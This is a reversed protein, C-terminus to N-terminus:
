PECDGPKGPGPAPGSLATDGVWIRLSGCSLDVRGFVGSSNRGDQETRVDGPLVVMSTLLRGTETRAEVTWPLQPLPQEHFVAGGVGPRFEGIEQGNVTLVVVLTTGNSIHLTPPDGPMLGCGTVLVAIALATALALTSARRRM